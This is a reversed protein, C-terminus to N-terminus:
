SGDSDEAPQDDAAVNGSVAVLRIRNVAAARAIRTADEADVSLSLRASGGDVIVDAVTAQSVLVVGDVDFLDVEAGTGSPVLVVDVVAGRTAARPPVAGLDVSIGVEALGAELEVSSGVLGPTMLTGAEIDIRAELGVVADLQDDSLVNLSEESALEVSQLLERTVVEGQPIAERAALVLRTSDNFTQWALAGLASGVILLLGLAIEPLRSRRGGVELQGLDFQRQEPAVAPAQQTVM